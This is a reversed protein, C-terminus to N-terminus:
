LACSGPAPHPSEKILCTKDTSMLGPAFVAGGLACAARIIPSRWHFRRRRRRRQEQSSRTGADDCVGRWNFMKYGKKLDASLTRGDPRLLPARSKEEKAAHSCFVFDIRSFHAHPIITYYHTKGWMVLKAACGMERVRRWVQISNHSV